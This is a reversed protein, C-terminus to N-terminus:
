ASARRRAVSGCRRSSPPTAGAPRGHRARVHRHPRAHDRRDPLGPQRPAAQPETVVLRRRRRRRAHGRRARRGGVRDQGEAHHPRAASGGRRRALPRRAAGAAQVAGRGGPDERHGDRGGHRRWVGLRRMRRARDRRSRAGLLLSLRSMSSEQDTALPPGTPRSPPPSCRRVRSRPARAANDAAVPFATLQVLEDLAVLGAGGVGADRFRLESGLGIGDRHTLPAGLVRSLFLTPAVPRPAPAETEAELADLAYGQVLPGHLARVRRAPQGLGDRSAGASSSSRERSATTSASRGLWRPWTAQPAGRLRRADCGDAVACRPARVERRGGEM